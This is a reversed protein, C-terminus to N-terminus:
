GETPSEPRAPGFSPPADEPRAGWIPDPEPSLVFDLTGGKQVFSEPLWPKVWTEGNVRLRTVYPADTGAGDATITITTGNGRRVVIHPFLPSALVLEARGPFFPYIGMASWVYWSSM